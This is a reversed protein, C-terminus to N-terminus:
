FCCSSRLLVLSLQFMLPRWGVAPVVSNASFGIVFPIFLVKVVTLFGAVAPVSAVAPLGVFSPLGAVALVASVNSDSNYCFPCCHLPLEL